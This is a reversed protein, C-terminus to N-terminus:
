EQDGLQALVVAAFVIACGALERITMKDHLLLFGGVVSFVSELSMLLSARAPPVKSQGLIQMTYGIGVSALGSYLIPVLALRLDTLSAQETFIMAVLSIIGAFLFQLCSLVVGDIRKVFHDIVTIHVAFLAACILELSDGFALTFEETICLLYFGAIAIVVSIWIRIKPFHGRFIGYLPVFFIYLTTIFGAKGVTTYQIGIQQFSSAVFLVAGCVIGGIIIYKLPTKGDESSSTIGQKSRIMIIPILSVCGLLYRTGNFTFPGIADMSVKQAVFAFGWVIAATLLMITGVIQDKRSYSM